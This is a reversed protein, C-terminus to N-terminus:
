VLPGGAMKKLHKQLELEVVVVCTKHCCDFNVGCCAEAM